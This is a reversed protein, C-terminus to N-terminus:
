SQPHLPQSQDQGRCVRCRGREEEREKKGGREAGPSTLSRERSGERIEDSIGRRRGMGMSEGKKRFM